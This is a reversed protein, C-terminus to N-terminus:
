GDYVVGGDVDSVEGTAFAALDSLYFLVPNAAEQATARRRLAVMNQLREVDSDTMLDNIMRSDTWGPCVCNCCVNYQGGEKAIVKTMGNLGAKTTAYAGRGMLGGGVKGAVSSVNVIRGYRHECMHSYVSQNAVFVGTLNISLVRDWEEQTINEFKTTSLIGVCNVLGHLQGFEAIIEAFNKRIIEPSSLDLVRYRYQETGLEKEMKELTKEDVDIACVSGGGAVIGEVIARGISGAGGTVIYNKNSFDLTLM